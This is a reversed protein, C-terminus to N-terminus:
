NGQINMTYKNAIFTLETGDTFHLTVNYQGRYENRGIREITKGHHASFDYKDYFPRTQTLPKRTDPPYEAQSFVYM